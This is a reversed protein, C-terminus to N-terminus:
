SGLELSTIDDETGFQKDPGASVFFPDRSLPLDANSVGPDPSTGTQDNSSRYVLPTEWPDYLEEYNDNDEDRFVGRGQMSAVVIERLDDGRCAWVLTESSTLGGPSGTIHPPADGFSSKHEEVAGMLSLMMSKTKSRQAGVQAYVAGAIVIGVLLAIISIAVLIEILTFGTTLRRSRRNNCYVDPHRGQPTTGSDRRPPTPTTM